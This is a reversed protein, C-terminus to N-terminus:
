WSRMEGTATTPELVVAVTSAQTTHSLHTRFSCLLGVLRTGTLSKGSGGLGANDVGAIGSLVLTLVVLKTGSFPCGFDSIPRPGPGM